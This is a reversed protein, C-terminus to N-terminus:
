VTDRYESIPLLQGDCTMWGAPAFNCGFCRIEGVYPQGMTTRRLEAVSFYGAICHLFQHCAVADSQPAASQRRRFHLSGSALTQQWWFRPPSQSVAYASANTATPTAPVLNSEIAASTATATTVNFFHSHSPVTSQTLTM